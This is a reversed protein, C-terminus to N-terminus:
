SEERRDYTYQAHGHEARCVKQAQQAREVEAAERMRTRRFVTLLVIRQGPALWDPLCVAEPM